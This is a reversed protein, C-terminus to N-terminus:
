GRWRSRKGIDIHVGWAYIGLGGQYDLQVGVRSGLAQNILRALEEPTVSEPFVPHLDVAEGTLHRSNLKGGVKANHQACRFGSNVRVCVGRKELADNLDRLLLALGHSMDARGCCRCPYLKSDIHKLSVLDVEDPM